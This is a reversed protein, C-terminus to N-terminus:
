DLIMYPESEEPFIFFQQEKIVRFVQGNKPNTIEKFSDDVSRSRLSRGGPSVVSLTGLEEDIQAIDKLILEKFSEDAEAALERQLDAKEDSLAKTEEDTLAM